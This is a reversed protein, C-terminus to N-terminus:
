RNENERQAWNPLRNIILETLTDSKESAEQSNPEWTVTASKIFFNTLFFIQSVYM